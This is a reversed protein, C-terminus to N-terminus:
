RLAELPIISVRVVYRAAWNNMAGSLWDCSDVHPFVTAAPRNGEVAVRIKRLNANIRDYRTMPM